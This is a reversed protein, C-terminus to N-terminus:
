LISQIEVRMTPVTHEKLYCIMFTFIEVNDQCLGLVVNCRDCLFGRIKGTQHDHDLRLSRNLDSEKVGCIACKGKQVIYLKDAKLADYHPGIKKKRKWHRHYIRDRDKNKITNKRSAKYRCHKCQGKNKNYDSPYMTDKTLIIGCKSCVKCAM